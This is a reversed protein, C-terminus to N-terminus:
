PSASTACCSTSSLLTAIIEMVPDLSDPFFTMSVALLAGGLAAIPQLWPLWAALDHGTWVGLALTLPVALVAAALALAALSVGQRQLRAALVAQGELAGAVERADAGKMDAEYLADLARKRAKTRASM